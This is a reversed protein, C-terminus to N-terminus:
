EVFPKSERTEQGVDQRKKEASIKEKPSVHPDHPGGVFAARFKDLVRGRVLTAHLM